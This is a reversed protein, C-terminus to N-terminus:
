PHTIGRAHRSSRKRQLHGDAVLRDMAGIYFWVLAAMSYEGGILWGGFTVFLIGVTVLAAVHRERRWWRLAKLLVTSIIALYVLGGILGLALMINAFDVEANVIGSGYKAAAITTIGLGQGAPQMVGAVLGDAIMQLHGRATSTEENAPDLLGEVQRSVLADVREGFSMTQLFTLLGILVAAAVATAIVFRPLWTVSSRASIAWLVVAAGAFMLVPGRAAALFVALLVIPLLLVLKSRRALGAALLTVATVLLYRQYEASSNFFGIARVVEESIYLAGYGVQEVWHQEFSLLGFYTQYLGWAAALVGVPVVVRLSLHEVLETTAYARGIWFWFLPVLYFLAGAIGVQLNGQLPNFMGLVMLTMLVAVLRALGSGLSLRRDLLASAFLFLAAAPAVLLLPDSTPYGEFYSVFRRYDGLFLLLTLAAFIGARRSYLALGCLVFGLVTATVIHSRDFRLLYPLPLAVAALVGIALWTERRLRQWVAGTATRRVPARTAVPPVDTAVAAMADIGPTM